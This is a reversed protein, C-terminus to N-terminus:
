GASGADPKAAVTAKFGETELVSLRDQALRAASTGPSAAVLEAFAQAAEQKKGMLALIRARNFSGMGAEFGASEERAMREYADLAQPLEGKAERAHGLGDLAATRLPESSPTGRLYGEFHGIAPDLQGLRVEAAALPLTATVAAKTGPYSTLVGSLAAAAAQDREQVTKFPKDEDTAGPPLDAAVPRSLVGIATGLAVRAKSERRDSLTKTVAVGFGVVLVAVIAAVVLTKRQAVWGEAGVGVRQFADPARLEQRSM